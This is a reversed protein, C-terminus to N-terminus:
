HEFPLNNALVITLVAWSGMLGVIILYDSVTLIQKKIQRSLFQAFVALGALIMCPTLTQLVVPGKNANLDVDRLSLSFQQRVM